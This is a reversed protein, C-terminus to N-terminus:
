RQSQLESTHEESRQITGPEQLVEIFPVFVMVAALELFSGVVIAASLLTLKWKDKKDFIYGLKALLSAQRGKKTESM